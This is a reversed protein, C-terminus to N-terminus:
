KKSCGHEEDHRLCAYKMAQKKENAVHILLDFRHCDDDGAQIALFQHQHLGILDQVAEGLDDMLTQREMCVPVDASAETEPESDEFQATRSKAELKENAIRAGTYANQPFNWLSKTREDMQPFLAFEIWFAEVARILKESRELDMPKRVYGNAHSLYSQRIDDPSASTSLMIVPILRLEPDAKIASLTELGGLRPM